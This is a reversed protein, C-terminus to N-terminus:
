RKPKGPVKKKGGSSAKGASGSSPHLGKCENKWHKKFSVEHNAMTAQLCHGCAGALSLHTRIHGNMTYGNGVIHRCFPCFYKTSKHGPVTFSRLVYPSFFPALVQSIQSVGDFGQETLPTDYVLTVSQRGLEKESIWRTDKSLSLKSMQHQGALWMCATMMKTLAERHEKTFLDLDPLHAAYRCNAYTEDTMVEIPLIMPYRSEAWHVSALWTFGIAAPGTFGLPGALAECADEDWSAWEKRFKRNLVYDGLWSLAAVMLVDDSKLGSPAPGSALLINKESELDLKQATRLSNLRIQWSEHTSWIHGLPAGESAGTGEADDNSSSSSRHLLLPPGM